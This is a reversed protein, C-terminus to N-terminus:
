DVEAGCGGCFRGESEIPTKCFPCVRKEVGPTPEPQALEPQTLEPQVLEPQALEPQALEPQVSEPPADAMSSIENYITNWIKQVTMKGHTPCNCKILTWPGSLKIDSVTAEQGCKYCRFVANRILHIFQDKQMLPVKFSRAGHQPCRQKIVIKDGGVKLVYIAGMTGCKPCGFMKSYDSHAM